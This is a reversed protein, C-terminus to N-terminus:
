PIVPNNHHIPATDAGDCEDSGETATQSNCNEGKLANQRSRLAEVVFSFPPRRGCLARGAMGSVTM